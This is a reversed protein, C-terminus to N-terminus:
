KNKQRLVMTKKNPFSINDQKIEIIQKEFQNAMNIEARLEKQIYYNLNDKRIVLCTDSLPIKTKSDQLKDNLWAKYARKKSELIRLDQLKENSLSNANNLSKIYENSEIIFNDSNNNINMNIFDQQEFQFPMLLNYDNLNNCNIIEKLHEKLYMYSEKASIIFLNKNKKEKSEM